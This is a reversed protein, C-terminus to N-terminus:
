RQANQPALPSQTSRTDSHLSAADKRTRPSSPSQCAVHLACCDDADDCGCVPAVRVWPGLVMTAANSSLSLPMPVTSFIPMASLTRLRPQTDSPHAHHQFCPLNKQALCTAM